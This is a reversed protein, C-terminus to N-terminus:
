IVVITSLSEEGKWKYYRKDWSFESPNARWNVTGIRRYLQEAKNLAVLGLAYVYHNSVAVVLCKGSASHM